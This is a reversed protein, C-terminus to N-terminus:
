LDLPTYVGERGDRSLCMYYLGNNTRQGYEVHLFAGRWRWMANPLGDRKNELTLKYPLPEDVNGTVNLLNVHFIDSDNTYHVLHGDHVFFLPAEDRSSLFSVTLNGTSGPLRTHSPSEHCM